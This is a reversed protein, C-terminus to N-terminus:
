KDQLEKLIKAADLVDTNEKMFVEAMKDMISELKELTLSDIVEQVRGGIGDFTFFYHLRAEFLVDKLPKKTIKYFESNKYEKEFEKVSLAYDFYNKANLLEKLKIELETNNM